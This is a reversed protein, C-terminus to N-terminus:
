SLFHTPNAQIILQPMRPKQPPYWPIHTPSLIVGISEQDTWRELHWAIRKCEDDSASFLFLFEKILHNPAANSVQGHLITSRNQGISVSLNDSSLAWISEFIRISYPTQTTKSDDLDLTLAHSHTLTYAKHTICVHVIPSALYIFVAEAVKARAISCEVGPYSVSTHM